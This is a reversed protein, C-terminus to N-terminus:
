ITRRNRAALWNVIRMAVCSACFVPAQDMNLFHSRLREATIFRPRISDLFGKAEAMVELPSRQAEHTAIRITLQNAALFRRVIQDKARASKRRCSPLLQCVEVKTEVM